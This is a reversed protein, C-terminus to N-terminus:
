DTTDKREDQNRDKRLRFDLGIQCDKFGDLREHIEIDGRVNSAYGTDHAFPKLEAKFKEVIMEIETLNLGSPRSTNQTM